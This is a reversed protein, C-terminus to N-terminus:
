FVNCFYEFVITDFGQYRRDDTWLNVSKPIVAQFPTIIQWCFGNILDFYVDPTKM